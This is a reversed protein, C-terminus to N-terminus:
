CDNSKKRGLHVSPGRLSNVYYLGCSSKLGHILGCSQSLFIVSPTINATTLRYSPFNREDLCMLELEKLITMLLSEYTTPKEIEINQFLVSLNGTGAM